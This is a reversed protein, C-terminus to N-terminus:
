VAPSWLSGPRVVLQKGASTAPWMPFSTDHALDDGQLTRLALVPVVGGGLVLLCGSSPQLEGFEAVRAALVRRVLLCLLSGMGTRPNVLRAM